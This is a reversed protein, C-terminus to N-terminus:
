RQSRWSRVFATRVQQISESAIKPARWVAKSQVKSGTACDLVRCYFALVHTEFVFIRRYGIACLSAQKMATKLLEKVAKPTMFLM